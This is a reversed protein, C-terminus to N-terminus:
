WYGEVQMALRPVDLRTLEASVEWQKTAEKPKLPYVYCEPMLTYGCTVHVGPEWRRLKVWDACTDLDHGAERIKEDDGTERDVTIFLRQERGELKCLINAEM